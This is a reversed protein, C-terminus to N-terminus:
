ARWGSGQPLLAAADWVQGRVVMATHELVSLRCFFLLPEARPTPSVELSCSWCRLGLGDDAVDFVAGKEPELPRPCLLMALV